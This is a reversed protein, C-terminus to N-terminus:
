KILNKEVDFNVLVEGKHSINNKRVVVYNRKEFFPLATISVDSKIVNSNNKFVIEEVYDILQSAIGKGLHLHSVYLHDIYNNELLSTFGLLGRRDIAIFFSQEKFKAEWRKIDNVGSSWV